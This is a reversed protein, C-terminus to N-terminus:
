PYASQGAESFFVRVGPQLGAGPLDTVAPLLELRVELEFRGEVWAALSHFPVVWRRQREPRRFWAQDNHFPVLPRLLVARGREVPHNSDSMRTGMRRLSRPTENLSM